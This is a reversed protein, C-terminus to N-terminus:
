KGQPQTSTSRPAAGQATSFASGVWAATILAVLIAAALLGWHPPEVVTEEAKHLPSAPAPQATIVAPPESTRSRSLSM